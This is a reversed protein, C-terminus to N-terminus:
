QLPVVVIESGASLVDLDGGDLLSSVVFSSGPDRVIADFISHSM